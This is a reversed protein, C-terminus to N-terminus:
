RLSTQWNLLVTFPPPATEQAPLAVLFRKGDPSVGWDVLAGPVRALEIPTGISGSIVPAAMITGALSRYLLEGSDARWRPATGGGRSVVVSAGLTPSQLTGTVPRVFVESLGSENSVYVIWQGDPSFQGETQDFNQELLPTPMAAVGHLLTWLDDKTGASSVATFVLRPGAPTVSVSLTSSAPNLVPSTGSRLVLESARTGNALKRYINGDGTGLTYWVETGDPTWAPGSEFLPDSTFRTTTNRLLDVMWLDQDARNLRNERVVVARTGDPSLRMRSVAGPEGVRGLPKGSRDVWTPQYDQSVGRYVVTSASAAFFATDRFTGVPQAVSRPEGTVIGRIPDFPAAMLEANRVFIVHGAGDAGDVYAGGFGTEVLRESRQQDPAVALDGLFLGNRSPTVRSVALYIFRRGDPLFSPMLHDVEEPGAVSTVFSAPTGGSASCRLLAGNANGVLVVGDQNWTGGVAVGPVDCLVEPVGGTRPVKKIKGDTYFAIFQSDPSWIMPPIVPVVEAETGPLARVEAADFSQIWLRLRRDEGTGAFVLHRGDPSVAFQGSESLRVSPPIEFRMAPAPAAVDAPPRNLLLVAGGAVVAALWAWPMWRFSTESTATVPASEIAVDVDGLDRFRQRPDKELCKRLFRIVGPPVDRPLATWDPEHEIVAAMTDTVTARGFAARGSLMEYLVCGFAWIDTRKDVARGRAQEPSMYAATGLVVGPATDGVSGLATVRSADSGPEPEESDLRGKALGFDLIKVTGTSTIMVNAPKLDRHVIGQEHAADLADAMQGALRLATALPVPGRVIQDALTEGDVLEMVLASIGQADELGHITAIHPHNLSALTRAEREFRRTRAPDSTFELPLVKIAVSRGLRSDRARYVEGMGGKGILGVVEYTGFRSGPALAM